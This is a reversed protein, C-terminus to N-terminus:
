SGRFKWYTYAYADRFGTRAYLARAGHNEGDVQLYLKNAGSKRAWLAAERLVRAALGRRRFQSETRMVYIAAWEGTAVCAGSSAPMGDVRLVICATPHAIRELINLREEGDEKTHSGAITLAAFADDRPELYEARIDNQSAPGRLATLDADAFMVFSQPDPVYGRASLMAALNQPETAPTIQFQPVLGAQRYLAEVNAITAGADRGEFAITAVSNARGSYGTSIRVVWGDVLRAEHAPWSAIAHPEITRALLSANVPSQDIGAMTEASLLTRGHGAQGDIKRM